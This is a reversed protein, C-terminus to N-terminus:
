NGGFRVLRFRALFLRLPLRGYEMDAMPEREYIHTQRELVM